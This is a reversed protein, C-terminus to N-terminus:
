TARATAGRERRELVVDVLDNAITGYLWSRVVCDMRSWDPSGPPPFDHLIHDQLSYKGLTLLFQERWRMYNGSNIDFIIPVPSWINQM